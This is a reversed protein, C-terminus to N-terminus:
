KPYSTHKTLVCGSSAPGAPDNDISVDILFVNGDLVERALVEGYIARHKEFPARM